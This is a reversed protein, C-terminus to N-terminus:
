KVQLGAKDIVGGWLVTDATIRDALVQPAGGVPEWGIALMKDRTAGDALIRTVEANVRAVVDAPLSPPAIMAIWLEATFGPMGGAEAITPVEPALASRQPSTIGLIKLKGAKFQALAGSPAMFASDIEQGLIANTVEPFSKYPVHLMKLGATAAFLEATLHSGSGQGVSGYTIETPAAKAWQVFGALDTPPAKTALVLVLPSTAVLSVPQVDKVPDYSLNKVLRPATTMPGNITIGLSHGDNQALTQQVGVVGGAGAKNEVVVPQGLSQALPEAILRAMTDPSSGAPFGVILRVPQTPWAAWAPAAVTIALASAIFTAVCNAFYHCRNGPPPRRNATM